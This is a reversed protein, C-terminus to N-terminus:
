DGGYTFMHDQDSRPTNILQLEAASVARFLIWAGTNRIFDVIRAWDKDTCNLLLGRSHRREWDELMGDYRDSM